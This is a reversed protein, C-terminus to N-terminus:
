FVAAPPPPPPPPPASRVIDLTVSDGQIYFYYETDYSDVVKVAINGNYVVVTYDYEKGDITVKLENVGTLKNQVYAISATESDNTIECLYNDISFKVQEYSRTNYDTLTRKGNSHEMYLTFTEGESTINLKCYDIDFVQEVSNIVALNGDVYIQNNTLFIAHESDESLYLGQYVFLEEKVYKLESEGFDIKLANDDSYLFISTTGYYFIISPKRVGDSSMTMVLDYQMEVDYILGDGTTNMTDAYFKGDDTLKFKEPGYAGEFYYVGVLNKFYSHPILTGILLFGDEVIRYETVSGILDMILIYKQGDKQYMISLLNTFYESNFYPKIEYPVKVGDVTLFNDDIILDVKGKKTYSDYIENITQRDFFYKVSENNNEKITLSYCHISTDYIRFELTLGMAEVLVYPNEETSSYTLYGQYNSLGYSVIYNEDISLYETYQTSKSIFDKEFWELYYSTNLLHIKQGNEYGIVSVGMREGIISYEKDGHTFIVAKQRDVIGYHKETEVNNILLKAANTTSDILFNYELDKYSYTGVLDQNRDFAFLSVKDAQEIEMGFPTPRLLTTKNDLLVEAYSGRDDVKMEYALPTDQNFQVTKGEENLTLVVEKGNEDIYNGFLFHSTSSMYCYTPDTVDFLDISGSENNKAFLKFYSYDDAYDFVEVSLYEASGIIAFSSKIYHFYRSNPYDKHVQSVIFVDYEASYTGDFVLAVNYIDATGDYTYSGAISSIDPMFTGIKQFTNNLSKEIVLVRNEKSYELYARYATDNFDSSYNVIKNKFTGGSVSISQETVSTPILNLSEEGDLILSSNSITVTGLTGYYKGLLNGFQEESLEPLTITNTNSSTTPPSTTSNTTSSSSNGCGVLFFLVFYTLLVNKNKM